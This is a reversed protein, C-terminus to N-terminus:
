VNDCNDGNHVEDEGEKKDGDTQENQIRLPLKVLQELVLSQYPKVSTYPTAPSFPSKTEGVLKEKM